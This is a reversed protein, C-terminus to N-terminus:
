DAGPKPPGLIHHEVTPPMESRQLALKLPDKAASYAFATSAIVAAAVAVLILTHRM